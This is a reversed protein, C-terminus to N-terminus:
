ILLNSSKSTTPARYTGIFKNGRTLKHQRNKGNSIACPLIGNNGTKRGGRWRGPLVQGSKIIMAGSSEIETGLQVKYITMCM